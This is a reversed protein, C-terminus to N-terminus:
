FPVVAARQVLGADPVLGPAGVTEKPWPFRQVGRGVGRALSQGPVPILPPSRQAPELQATCPGMRRSGPHEQNGIGPQLHPQILGPSGDGGRPIHIKQRRSRGAPLWCPRATWGVVSPCSRARSICQAAPPDLKPWCRQNQAVIASCHGDQVIAELGVWSGGPVAPDM